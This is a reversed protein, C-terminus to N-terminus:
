ILNRYKKSGAKHSKKSFVRRTKPSEAIKGLTVVIVRANTTGIVAMM